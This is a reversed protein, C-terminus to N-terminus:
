ARGLVPLPQRDREGIAFGEPLEFRPSGLARYLRRPGAFATRAHLWRSNDLLYADGADLFLRQQHRTITETLVRVHQAALPNWRVLEDLRLRVLIREDPTRGFVPAFVGDPGGFFGARDESFAEVADPHSMALATYVARGDTLLSAGGEEAPRACAFLMLRPPRPTGSRETHSALDSNGLGAFGPRDAHRHTNCIVTLGDPDSDPHATVDLFRTALDLVAARSDLGDLTVLGHERLGAVVAEHAGNARLNVYHEAFLDRSTAAAARSM